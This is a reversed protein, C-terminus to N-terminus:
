LFVGTESKSFPGFNQYSNCFTISLVVRKCIVYSTCSQLLFLLTSCPRTTSFFFLLSFDPKQYRFLKARFQIRPLNEYKRVFIVNWPEPFETFFSSDRFFFRHYEVGISGQFSLCHCASLLLLVRKDYKLM